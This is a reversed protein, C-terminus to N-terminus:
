NNEEDMAGEFGTLYKFSLSLATIEFILLFVTITEALINLPLSIGSIYNILMNVIMPVILLVAMLRWGNNETVTMAWSWDINKYEISIAPFLISLRVFLFLIPLMVIIMLYPIGSSALWIFIPSFILTLITIFIYIGISYLVFIWERKKWSLGYFSVSEKGLLVVRHTTITFIVFVIGYIIKYIFIMEFSNPFLVTGLAIMTLGTLLLPKWLSSLNTLMVSFAELITKFVLLRKEQEPIKKIVLGDISSAKVWIDMEIDRILTNETLEGHEIFNLLEEKSIPGFEQEDIKYYWNKM